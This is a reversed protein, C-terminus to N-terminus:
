ARVTFRRAHDPCEHYLQIQAVSQVREWDVAEDPGTLDAFFALGCRPCVARLPEPPWLGWLTRDTMLDALRGRHLHALLFTTSVPQGQREQTM